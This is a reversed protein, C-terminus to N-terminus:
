FDRSEDVESPKNSPAHFYSSRSRHYISLGTLVALLHLSLLIIPPWKWLMRKSIAFVIGYFPFQLILLAGAISTGSRAWRTDETLIGLSLSYPFFVTIINLDHGGGSLIAGFAYFIVTLVCGVVVALLINKMLIRSCDLPQTSAAAGFLLSSNHISFASSRLEANM